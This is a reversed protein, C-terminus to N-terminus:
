LVPRRAAIARDESLAFSILAQAVPDVLVRSLDGDISAALAALGPLV